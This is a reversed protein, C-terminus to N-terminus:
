SFDPMERDLGCDEHGGALGVARGDVNRQVEMVGEVVDVGELADCDARGDGGTRVQGIVTSLNRM